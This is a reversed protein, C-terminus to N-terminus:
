VKFWNLWPRKVVRIADIVTLDGASSIGHTGIISPHWNPEIKSANSEYYEHEDMERVWQMNIGYGYYPVGIQSPRYLM